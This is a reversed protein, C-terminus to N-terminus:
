ARKRGSRSRGRLRGGKTMKLQTKSNKQAVQKKKYKSNQDHLWVEWSQAMSPGRFQPIVDAFYQASDILHFSSSNVIKNEATESWQCEEFENILDMQDEPIFIRTGLLDQLNKILDGKRNMKKYITLYSVGHKTATGTFWAAVDSIRRVINYGRSEEQVRVFISEPDYVGEIYTAKVCFWRGSKPHEAWLTLGFKSKLAPDVSLVHRWGKSYDDPRPPSMTSPNFDYVASDGATWEGYLVTRKYSESYGDLAALIESVRKKYIPNDLKSMSYKKSVTGNSADIIKKIKANRLKPTFTAILYGNKASVRQMLEDLIKFSGPMEDLWVYHASYGQMHKRNAESSDSHSVFVIQDGTKRNVVYQLTNGSRVEKWEAANLYRKLRDNWLNIEMNKRDQGAIVITLHENWEAPRKWYPHTGTLVWALERAALQSKGSQNGAVVWRYTINGMDQFIADQKPNARSLPKAPDFCKALTLKKYKELAAAVLKPDQTSM